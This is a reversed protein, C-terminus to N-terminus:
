PTGERSSWRLFQRLLFLIVGTGMLVYSKILLTWELSYYYAGVYYVLFVLALGTVLRNGRWFGLVLVIAAALLGPMRMAPIFLLACGALLGPVAGRRTALGLGAAIRLVLFLLLLALLAASIWWQVDFDEWLPLVLMGLLSVIVGYGLPGLLGEPLRRLLKEEQWYRLCAGGALAAILLHVWELAHLDNVIVLAAGAIVVTSIFRHVRNFHVGILIIELAILILATPVVQQLAEDLGIVFVVQGALSFALGIQSTFTNRTILRNLGVAAACLALGWLLWVLRSGYTPLIRSALLFGVLFLAALWASLGVFLRVYWPTGAQEGAPELRARIDPADASVALGQATLQDLVERLTTPRKM